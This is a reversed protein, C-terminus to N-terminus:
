LRQGAITKDIEIRMKDLFVQTGFNRSHDLLKKEDYNNKDFTKIVQALSTATKEHFFEGSLGPIIFDLAGGEGYALVPTGSAMAEIATMGFDEIGPFLFAEAQSMLKIWTQDDPRIVFETNPGAMERLQKEMPGSGAVILKVGALNCAEIALDFKKYSVMAGAVLFFPCGPNSLPAFRELRIPPHIVTSPRGYFKKVRGGVFRSNVVFRDVRKHTKVDWSRLFFAAIRICAGALPIGQMSEVYEDIQDWIYRM